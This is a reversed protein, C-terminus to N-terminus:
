RVMLQDFVLATDKVTKSNEEDRKFTGDLSGDQQYVAASFVLMQKQVHYKVNEFPISFNTLQYSNNKQLLNLVYLQAVNSSKDHHFYAVNLDDLFFPQTDAAHYSPPTLEEVTDSSIDLLYM